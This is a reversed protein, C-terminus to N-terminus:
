NEIYKTFKITQYIINIKFLCDASKNNYLVINKKCIMLKM